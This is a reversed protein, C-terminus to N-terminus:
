LLKIFDKYISLKNSQRIKRLFLVKYNKYKLLRQTIAFQITSYTKSSGAGGVDVVTSIDNNKSVKQLERYIRTVKFKHLTENNQM